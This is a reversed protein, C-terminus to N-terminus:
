IKVTWVVMSAFVSGFHNQSTTSRYVVSYGSRKTLRVANDDDLFGRSEIGLQGRSSWKAYAELPVIAFVLAVLIRYSM